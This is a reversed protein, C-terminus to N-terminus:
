FNLASTQLVQNGSSNKQVSYPRENGGKTVVRIQDFKNAVETQYRLELPFVALFPRKSLVPFFVLVLCVWFIKQVSPLYLYKTVPRKAKVKM